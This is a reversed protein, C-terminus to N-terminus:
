RVGELEKGFNIVFPVNFPGIDSGNRYYHRYTEDWCERAPCVILAMWYAAERRIAEAIIDFRM